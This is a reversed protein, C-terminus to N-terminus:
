CFRRLTQILPKWRNLDWTFCGVEAEGVLFEVNILAAVRNDEEKQEVAGVAQWL